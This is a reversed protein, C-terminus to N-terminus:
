SEVPLPNSYQAFLEALANVNNGNQSLGVIADLLQDEPLELDIDNQALFMSPVVGATKTNGRAFPMVQLIALAYHAAVLFIDNSEIEGTEVMRVPRMTADHLLAQTTGRPINFEECITVHAQFIQDVELFIIDMPLARRQAQHAM